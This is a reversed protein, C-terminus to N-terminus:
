GNNGGDLDKLRSDLIALHLNARADLEVPEEIHRSACHEAIAADMDVLQYATEDFADNPEEGVCDGPIGMAALARRVWATYRDTYKMFPEAGQLAVFAGITGDQSYVGETEPHPPLHLWQETGEATVHRGLPYIRCVLPRDSYVTCGRDGLFVCSGDEERKLHNGQGNETRSIRFETTTTGLRRALRATEYPDVQIQMERCCRMCRRCSYGFRENKTGSELVDKTV